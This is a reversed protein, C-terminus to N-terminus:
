RSPARTGSRGVPLRASPPNLLAPATGGLLFTVPFLIAAALGLLAGPSATAFPSDGIWRLLLFSLAAFLGAGVELFGYIRLPTSFRDVIGGFARAGLALGGFFAVLVVSIAEIQSGALLAIERTWVVQYVLAPVGSLFALALISM